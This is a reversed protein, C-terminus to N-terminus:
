PRPEPLPDRMGRLPQRPLRADRHRLISSCGDRLVFLYCAVVPGGPALSSELRRGAACFDLVNRCRYRVIPVQWVHTQVEEGGEEQQM